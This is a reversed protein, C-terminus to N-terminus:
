RVTNTLNAGTLDAGQLDAGTLDDNDNYADMLYDILLINKQDVKVV